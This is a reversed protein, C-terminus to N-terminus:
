EVCKQCFVPLSLFIKQIDPHIRFLKEFINSVCHQTVKIISQILLFFALVQSHFDLARTAKLVSTLIETREFGCHRVTCLYMSLPKAQLDSYLQIQNPQHLQPPRSHFHLYSEAGHEAAFSEEHLQHYQLQLLQFLLLSM